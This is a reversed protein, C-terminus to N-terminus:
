FFNIAATNAGGKKYKKKLKNKQCRFLITGRFEVVTGMAVLPPCQLTM